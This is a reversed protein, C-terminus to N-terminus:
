QVGLLATTLGHPRVTARRLVRSGVVFGPSVTEEIASGPIATGGASLRHRYPDFVPESEIITVGNRELIEQLQSRLHECIARQEPRLASQGAELQEFLSILEEVLKLWSSNELPEVLTRPSM